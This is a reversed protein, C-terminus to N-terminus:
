RVGGARVMRFPEAALCARQTDRNRVTVRPGRPPPLKALARACRSCYVSGAEARLWLAGCGECVKVDVRLDNM